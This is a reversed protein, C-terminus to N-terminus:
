SNRNEDRIISNLIFAIKIQRRSLLDVKEELTEKKQFPDNVLDDLLLDILIVASGLRRFFLMRFIYFGGFVGLLLTIVVPLFEM